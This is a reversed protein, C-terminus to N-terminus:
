SYAPYAAAVIPNANPTENFYAFHDYKPVISNLADHMAVHLMSATRVGKMTLLNDEAVATEIIKQNFESAISADYNEVKPAQSTCSQLVLLLALGIFTRNGNKM